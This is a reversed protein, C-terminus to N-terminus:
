VWPVQQHLSPPIRMYRKIHFIGHNMPQKALDDVSCLSSAAQASDYWNSLRGSAPLFLRIGGLRDTTLDDCQDAPTPPCTGRPWPQLLCWDSVDSVSPNFVEYNCSVQSTWSMASTRPLLHCKAQSTRLTFSSSTGVPFVAGIIQRCSM